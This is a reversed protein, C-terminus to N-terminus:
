SMDCPIKALFFPRGQPRGFDLYSVHFFTREVHNSCWLLARLVQTTLAAIIPCWAATALPPEGSFLCKLLPCGSEKPDVYAQVAPNTKVLNFYDWACKAEDPAKVQFLYM